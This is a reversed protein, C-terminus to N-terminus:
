TAADGMKGLRIAQVEQDLLHRLGLPGEFLAPLFSKEAMIRVAVEDSKDENVRYIIINNKPRKIKNDEETKSVIAIYMAKTVIEEVSRIDVIAASSLMEIVKTDVLVILDTKFQASEREMEGNVIESYNLAGTKQAEELVAIRTKLSAKESTQEKIM